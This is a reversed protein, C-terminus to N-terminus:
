TVQLATTSIARSRQGSGCIRSDNAAPDLMARWREPSLLNVQACRHCTYRDVLAGFDHSASCTDHECRQFITLAVTTLSTM